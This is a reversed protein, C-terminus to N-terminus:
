IQPLRNQDLDAQARELVQELVQIHPKEDAGVVVAHDPPNLSLAVVDAAKLAFEPITLFVGV